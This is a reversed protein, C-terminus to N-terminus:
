GPRLSTRARVAAEAPAGFRLLRGGFAIACVAFWAAGLALGAIVDSLWHVSLLVRSGAVLVTLAGAAGALWARTRGDRGRGLLLASAAFFAISWSSHGSPFSPGLTAAVANVDPRVRDALHKVTTTLIGNGAVVVLVFPVVWRSRTRVTEAVAVVAALVAVVTPEGLTTVADLGDHALPTMHRDGWTAVSADLRVLDTDGRVLHALVALVLGGGAILVLAATLALGTATGPDLRRGLATRLGPRRAAAEAAPRATYAGPGRPSAGPSRPRRRPGAVGAAILLLLLTM